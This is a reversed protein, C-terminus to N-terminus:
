APTGYLLSLDASPIIPAGGDDVPAEFATGDPRMIQNHPIYRLKFRHSITWSTVNGITRTFGGAPALYQILGPAYTRGNPLTFPASNVRGALNDYLEEDPQPINHFTVSFDRWPILVGVDQNLKLGDSPFRYASGPRTIFDAGGGFQYSVLPFDGGMMFFPESRFFVRALARSYTIEETAHVSPMGAADINCDAAYLSDLDPDDSPFKLPVVRSVTIGGPYTIDEELGGVAMLFETKSSWPGWWAAEAELVGGLGWRVRTQDRIRQWGTPLDAITSM